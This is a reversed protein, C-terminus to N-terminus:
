SSGRATWSACASRRRSPTPSEPSGADRAGLADPVRLLPCTDPTRLRESLLWSSAPIHWQQPQVSVCCLYPTSIFVWNDFYLTATKSSRCNLGSKLASYLMCILYAHQYLHKYFTCFISSHVCVGGQLRGGVPQRTAKRVLPQTWKEAAFLM